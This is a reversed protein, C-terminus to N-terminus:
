RQYTGTLMGQDLVHGQMARQHGKADMEPKLALAADLAYLRFRYHHLGHGRPPAPGRYGISNWSNKGQMAGAPQALTPYRPLAEPLEQVTPPIKYLLWHIWPEPTPADPDDVILALERTGGPLGVWQLPPSVDEGDGTYRLPIREGDAFAQSRVILTM